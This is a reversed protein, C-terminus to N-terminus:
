FLRKSALCFIIISCNSCYKNARDHIVCKYWEKVLSLIMIRFEVKSLLITNLAIASTSVSTSLMIKSEMNESVLWYEPIAESYCIIKYLSDIQM